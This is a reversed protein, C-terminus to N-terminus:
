DSNRKNERNVKKRLGELWKREAKVQTQIFRLSQGGWEGVRMEAAIRALNAERDALWRDRVEIIKLRAEKPLVSFLGVRLSCAERNGAEKESLEGLQALLEQKGKATLAYLERTQGREGEVTRRSVWGEAVFRKLLPYILNNHMEKRGTLLGIRKKLAYGHKPGGLLTSLVLLDNM